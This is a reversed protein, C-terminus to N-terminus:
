GPTQKGAVSLTGGIRSSKQVTSPNEQGNLSTVGGRWFNGDFSAWFRPKVDYSLHGEFAAIPNETQVSLGPNFQNRTFFWGATYADVVWHGWRRSLGLELKSAWRNGGYNILKSPDYQGTPAVFKFRFGLVTKQRWNRVNQVDMDDPKLGQM